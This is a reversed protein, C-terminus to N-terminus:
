STGNVVTAYHTSQILGAFGWTHFYKKFFGDAEHQLQGGNPSFAEVWTLAEADPHVWYFCDDNAADGFGSVATGNYMYIPRGKYTLTGNATESLYQGYSSQGICTQLNAYGTPTCIGFVQSIDQVNSMLGALTQDLRQLTTFIEQATGDAAFSLQGAPLTKSTGATGAVLDTIIELEAKRRAADVFVKFEVADADADWQDLEYPFLSVTHAGAFATLNVNTRAANNGLMTGDAPTQLTVATTIRVTIAGATPKGIRPSNLNSTIGGSSKIAPTFLGTYVITRTGFVAM